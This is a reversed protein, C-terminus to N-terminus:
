QVDHPRWEEVRDKFQEFIDRQAKATLKPWVARLIDLLDGVEHDPDSQEGHASASAILQDLLDAHNQQKKQYASARQERSM